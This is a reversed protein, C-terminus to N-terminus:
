IAAPPEPARAPVAPLCKAELMALADQVSLSELAVLIVSITSFYVMESCNLIEHLKACAKKIVEDETQAEVASTLQCLWAQDSIKAQLQRVARLTILSENASPEALREQARFVALANTFMQGARFEFFDPSEGVITEIIGTELALMEVIGIALAQADRTSKEWFPDAGVASNGTTKAVSELIMNIAQDTTMGEFLDAM